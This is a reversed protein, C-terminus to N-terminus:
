LSMPQGNKINLVILKIEIDKLRSLNMYFEAEAVKCEIFAYLRKNENQLRISEKKYVDCDRQYREIDCKLRDIDVHTKAPPNECTCDDQGRKTAASTTMKKVPQTSEM